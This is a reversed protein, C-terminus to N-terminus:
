IIFRIGGCFLSPNITSLVVKNVFKEWGSYSQFIAQQVKILCDILWDIWDIRVCKITDLEISTDVNSKLMFIGHYLAPSVHQGMRSDGRESKKSVFKEWGSYSQFIAQQVKLMVVPDLNKYLGHQEYIHKKSNKHPGALQKDM